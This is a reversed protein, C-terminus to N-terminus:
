AGAVHEQELHAIVEDAEHTRERLSAFLYANEKPHHLKPPEELYFIM